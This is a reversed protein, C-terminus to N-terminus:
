EAYRARLTHRAAQSAKRSRRASILRCAEVRITRTIVSSRQAGRPTQITRSAALSARLFGGRFNSVRSAARASIAM